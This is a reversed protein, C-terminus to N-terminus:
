VTIMIFVCPNLALTIALWNSVSGAMWSLNVQSFSNKGFKYVHKGTFNGNYVTDMEICM